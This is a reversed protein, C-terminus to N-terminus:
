ESRYPGLTREFIRQYSGDRKMGALASALDPILPEHREHLYLFMDPKALPPQLIEVDRLDLLRLKHLGQWREFIIVDARGKALLAFLQEADTVRTVSRATPLNAEVIKWGNIFAIDYPELSRWSGTAFSANRTFAVFEWSMIPVPVRRINPYLRQLGEVRVATGDDIGSDVNKLSREAPLREIWVELGIRKFAEITLLDHFGTQTRNALPAASTTNITLREQASAEAFILTVLMALVPIMRM